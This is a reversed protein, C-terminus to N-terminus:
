KLIPPAGRFVSTFLNIFISIKFRLFVELHAAGENMIGLFYPVIKKM